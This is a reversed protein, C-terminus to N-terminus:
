TSPATRYQALRYGTSIMSHALRHGTSIMSHALRQGTSTMSHALRHGTSTMSHALRHGTSIMSHPLRHGTSIMSHPLCDGTSTMSHPLRHGTSIMCDNIHALGRPEHVEADEGSEGVVGDLNSAFSKKEQQEVDNKRRTKKGRSILREAGRIQSLMMLTPNSTRTKRLTTRGVSIQWTNKKERSDAAGCIAYSLHAITRHETCAHSM